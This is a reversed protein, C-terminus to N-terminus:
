TLACLGSEQNPLNNDKGADCERVVNGDDLIRYVTGTKAKRSELDFDAVEGSCDLKYYLSPFELLLEDCVVPEARPRRLDPEDLSSPGFPIRSSPAESFLSKSTKSSNKDRRIVPSSNNNNNNSIKSTSKFKSTSNKTDKTLPSILRARPDPSYTTRKTGAGKRLYDFKPPPNCKSDCCPRHCKPSKGATPKPVGSGVILKSSITPPSTVTECSKKCPNGRASSIHKDSNPISQRARPTLRPTPSRDPSRYNHNCCDRYIQYKALDARHAEIVSILQPSLSRSKRSLPPTLSCISAPPSNGPSVQLLCARSRPIAANSRSVPIISHRHKTRLNSSKVGYSNCSTTGHVCKGPESTLIGKAVQPSMSRSQRSAVSNRISNNSASRARSSCTSKYAVSNPLDGHRRQYVRDSQSPSQHYKHSCDTYINFKSLDVRHGDASRRVMHPSASRSYRTSYSALSSLSSTQSSSTRVSSPSSRRLYEHKERFKYKHDCCSKHTQALSSTMETPLIGSSLKSNTLKENHRKNLATNVLSLKIDDTFNDYLNVMTYPQEWDAECDCFNASDCSDTLCWDDCACCQATEQGNVLSEPSSRSSDSKWRADNFFHGHGDLELSCNNEVWLSDNWAADNIWAIEEDEELSKRHLSDDEAM